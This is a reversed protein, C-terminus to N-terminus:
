LAMGADEGGMEYTAPCMLFFVTNGKSGVVTQDAEVCINWRPNCNATLNEVFAAVDADESLEFVYGVFAISGMMPMFNACSEYGEIVYNDFGPFYETGVEMPTAMGMFQNIELSILANALEDATAEPNAELESVFKAWHQGGVSEADVTPIIDTSNTEPANEDVTKGGCAVFSLCLMISLVLAIIKKM